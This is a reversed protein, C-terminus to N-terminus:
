EQKAIANIMDIDFGQVKGDKESEFPPFTTDAAVKITQQKASEPKASSSSSTGCGALVVTTLLGMILLSGDWKRKLLVFVEMLQYIYMTNNYILIIGFKSVNLQCLYGYFEKEM